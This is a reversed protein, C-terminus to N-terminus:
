TIMTRDLLAAETRNLNMSHMNSFELGANERSRRRSLLM